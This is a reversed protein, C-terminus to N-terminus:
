CGEPKWDWRQQVPDYCYPAQFRVTCGNEFQRVCDGNNCSYRSRVLQGAPMQCNDSPTTAAAVKKKQGEDYWVHAAERPCAAYDLCRAYATDIVEQRNPGRAMGISGDNAHFVVWYGPGDEAGQLKCPGHSETAHRCQSLALERAKAKTPQNGEYYYLVGGAAAKTAVLAAAGFANSALCLLGCALVTRKLILVAAGWQKDFWKFASARSKSPFATITTSM